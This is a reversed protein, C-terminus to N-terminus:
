FKYNLKLFGSRGTGVMMTGDGSTHAGGSVAANVNQIDFINKVGASINLKKKYFFKSLTADMLSYAANQQLSVTNEGSLVYIPKVGTYKYFVSFSTEWKEVTYSASSTSELYWAYDPQKINGNFTSTTGTYSCGSKFELQHIFYRLQLEGGTATFEDLNIYSYLGTVVDAQALAIQNMIHNYYFAPEIELVSKSKALKTNFSINYNDSNEAKLNPNGRVNHSADVFFLYQEKISPARFGKSWSLRLTYKDSFKYLANLSPVLPANYQSNYIGRLSPRITLKDIPNYDVCAFLAADTIQHTANDIKKGQAVEQNIELGSLLNFKKGLVHNYVTRAFYSQFITTDDDNPDATLVSVLDVLDKRYSNKIYRYHNYAATFQWSSKENLKKDTTFMLQNRMTKYNQDFAYAQYPTETINGKNFVTEDSFNYQLSMKYGNVTKNYKANAFYQEKPHWLQSRLSATPSWGDFFNRGANFFLNSNKFGKGISFDTNYNGVTEYYANVNGNWKEEKNSKTILNVVGGLADSGYIVSMPGKVMEIHDINAVNLQSIDINGNQRGIVPVGDILFKVHQGGVGQLSLSSGLVGDNSLQVNLQQTMIDRVNNAARQQIEKSGIVDINYISNSKFGPTYNGTVTVEDFSMPLATLSITKSFAYSHITDMLSTFGLSSVKYFIPLSFKPVMVVGQNNTFRAETKNDALSRFVVVAGEMNENQASKVQIQQASAICTCLMWVIQLFYSRKIM